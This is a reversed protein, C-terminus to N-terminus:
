YRRITLTPFAGHPRPPPARTVAACQNPSQNHPIEQPHHDDGEEKREDGAHKPSPTGYRRLGTITGCQSGKLSLRRIDYAGFFPPTEPHYSDSLRLVLQGSGPLYMPRAVLSLPVGDPWSAKPILLNCAVLM